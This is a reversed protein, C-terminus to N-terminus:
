LLVKQTSAGHERDWRQAAIQVADWPSGLPPTYSLDLDSLDAVAMNHFLATAFVDVRKATESGLRGVLQAGLLKGTHIDATVSIAIPTAGPYYAKHDDATAVTTAPHFGAREAEHQRLGTRAAILDFVKVVQTGLSGAYCAQGGLANEGAVRGQKHATTGLPLYTTGLQRHHTIVCDGAAWVHPVGSAMREDVVVAGRIGVDAGANRLLETEPRVGVAILVLDVDWAVDHGTTEGHVRLRGGGSGREISTVRTNTHLQVGHRTLEDGVLKGLHADVSALVEEHREVQIVQIGLMTLAEAMELGIYGGGVILANAPQIRHISDMLAFTDAMSHLLHVSEDSGLTELGGIPPRNPVAGTGVVLEDYKITSPTGDPGVVHLIRKGADIRTARTNLRLTMGTDTLDQETRHALNRWDAVEGSVFYPIGCISFNPFGDAIVVTVDAAPDLELARLAAAIGADSGGVIVLKMVTGKENGGADGDNSSLSKTSQLTKQCRTPRL